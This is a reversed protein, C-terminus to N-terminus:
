RRSATVRDFMVLLDTARRPVMPQFWAHVRTTWPTRLMAAVAPIRDATRLDLAFSGLGLQGLAADFSSLDSPVSDLSPRARADLYPATLGEYRHAATGVILLQSGLWARLRQGMMTMPPGTAPFVLPLNMAHGNHSFVLIRGGRGQQALVWRVNEFMVSDRLRIAGRVRPGIAGPNGAADVTRLALSERLRQANWATRRATALEVPSTARTLRSSDTRLVRELADLSLRLQEREASSYRPYGAMTFRNTLPDLRSRLAAAATPAARDLYALVAEITRAAGDYGGVDGPVDIGYFHVKRAARANHERMWGILERQEPYGNFGSTFGVSIVSDIDGPGGQVFRDVLVGETFGSEIAIATFGLHTVAYRFLHNRLALPEHAGHIMEGLSLVRAGGFLRGLFRYASDTYPEDVSRMPIANAHAWGVFSDSPQLPGQASGISQSGAPWRGRLFDDIAAVVRKTREHQPWHGADPVVLLRARPQGAVWERSGELPFNDHAGHVVLHPIRLDGLRDRWDVTAFSAMAAAATKAYRDPWENPYDCVDPALRAMAPDAFTGPNSLRARERCLEVQRGAFEGAAVRAELRAQAVTDSRSRARGRIQTLFPEQRPPLPALQVLRTVRSPNRIAYAFADPGLGSWGILAFSDAGVARGVAEFDLLRRDLTMKSPPVTDSRGRGRSDYLVVRRGHGLSDLSRGHYAAAPVLVTERGRGVIRYWLRVSDSTTAYGERDQRGVTAVSFAALFGNTTGPLAVDGGGAATMLGTGDPRITHVAAEGDRNSEFAIAKGDPSWSPVSYYVRPVPGQATLTSAVTSALFLLGVPNATSWCRIAKVTPVGM